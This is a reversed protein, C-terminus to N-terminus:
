TRRRAITAEARCEVRRDGGGARRVPGAGHQGHLRYRGPTEDIEAYRKPWAAGAGRADQGVADAPAVAARARQRGAGRPPGEEVILHANTGSFGFSSIGAIRRKEGRKWPRPQTPIELPILDQPIHPNLKQFHLHPPIEEHLLSLVVKILGAVGAAAELHGINTKM